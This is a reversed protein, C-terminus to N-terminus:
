AASAAAAAALAAGVIGATNRFEAPVVRAYPTLCHSFKDFERSIGGGLIFLDPYLIKELLGLYENLERGWDEFGLGRRVRAAASVYCEISRDDKVLHGLESNPHLHGNHFLASGVGTGLTLVLVTGAEGRGAGFRLEALGAADADNILTVPCGSTKSFLAGADCDCFGKHLNATWAIRAGHVVGPFGVGVPGQWEFRRVMEAVAAAMAEPSLKEATELKERETLLQGSVLDVPAGKLASGGIDIGLITNM